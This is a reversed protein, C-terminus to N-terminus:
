FMGDDTEDVTNSTGCKKFGNVIVDKSFCQWTM